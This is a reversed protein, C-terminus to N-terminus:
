LKNWTQTKCFIKLACGKMKMSSGSITAHGAYTKDDRPDTITGSYRKGNAKLKGIQKGVYEGSTLKICFSGGCKSIQANAGSATKWAGEIDAAFTPTALLAAAAAAALFTRKM